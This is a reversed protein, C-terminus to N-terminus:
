AGPLIREVVHGNELFDKAHAFALCELFELPQYPRDVIEFGPDRREGILGKPGPGVLEAAPEGVPRSEVVDQDLGECDHALRSTAYETLPVVVDLHDTGQGEVPPHDGLHLGTLALGEDGGHGGIQVSELAVPDVHHGDVVVEGGTVGLPHSCDV